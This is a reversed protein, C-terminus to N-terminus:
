NAEALVLYGTSFSQLVPQATSSKADMRALWNLLPRGLRILWTRRWGAPQVRLAYKLINVAVALAAGQKKFDLIQFGAEELLYRLGQETFRWLDKESDMRHLFPTALVFKSNTKLMRKIEALARAPSEVYELVELCVVTDYSHSGFPLNQIDGRLHPTTHYRDLTIWQSAQELPPIFEGRRGERGAGIELVSGQMASRMTELDEDLLGRRVSYWLWDETFPQSKM